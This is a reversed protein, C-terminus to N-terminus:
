PETECPCRFWHLEVEKGPPNLPCRGTWSHAPDMQHDWDPVQPQRPPVADPWVSPATANRPSPPSGRGQPPLPPLKAQGWLAPPPM